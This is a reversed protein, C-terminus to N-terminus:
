PLGFIFLDNGAAVAFYQRNEIAYSILAGTASQGMPFSWLAKGTSADMASLTDSQGASLLLGSATTVTGTQGYEDIASDNKWVSTDAFPDYAFFKTM